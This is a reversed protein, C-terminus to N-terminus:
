RWRNRDGQGPVAWRAPARWPPSAATTSTAVVTSSSLRSAPARPVSPAATRGQPGQRDQRGRVLAPGGGHHLGLRRDQWPTTSSRSSCTVRLSRSVVLRPRLGHRVGEQPRAPSSPRPGGVQEQRAQRDNGSAKSGAKGVKRRIQEGAYRVGKGKYPDAKRAQPHKRCGRWGAAQRHGPGLFPDPERRCLSARPAEVTIPHSYGLAFENGGKNVVRYGTGHIEM